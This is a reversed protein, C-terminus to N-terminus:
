KTWVTGGNETEIRSIDWEEYESLAGYAILKEGDETIIEVIISHGDHSIQADKWKEIGLESRMISALNARGTSYRPQFATEFLSTNDRIDVIVSTAIVSYALSLVFLAMFVFTLIKYKKM